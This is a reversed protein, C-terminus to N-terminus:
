FNDVMKPKVYLNLALQWARRWSSSGWPAYRPLQYVDTDHTAVGSSTTVALQYGAEKVIRVHEPGYDIGPRGNPYAFATVPERLIVELDERSGIIEDLAEKETCRTLIPHLRSHAGIQFGAEQLRVVDIAKFPRFDENKVCGEELAVIAAERDPVTLYKVKEQIEIIRQNIKTSMSNSNASGWDFGKPLPKEGRSCMAVAIRDHWFPLDRSLQNTTIFFTAPISNKQLLPVLYDFWDAYGDDFTMVAARPPLSNLKLRAVAEDLRFFVFWERYNDFIKEFDAACVENFSHAAMSVPIKHYNFILLSGLFTPRMGFKLIAKTLM